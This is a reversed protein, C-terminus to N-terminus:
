SERRTWVQLVSGGGDQRYWAVITKAAGLRGKVGATVGIPIARQQSVPSVRRMALWRSPACCISERVYTAIADDACPDTLCRSFVARYIGGREDLVVGTANNAAKTTLQQASEWNAGDDNSARYKIWSDIGSIRTFAVVVSHRAALGPSGATDVGSAIVRPTSWTAGDTSRQYIVTGNGNYAVHITPSVGIAVVRKASSVSVPIALAVRAGFSSGGDTSVRTWISQVGGIQGGAWVVVVRGSGDGAVRPDHANESAPSLRARSWTAGSDTSLAHMVRATGGVLQNWVIDFRTGRASLSVNLPQGITGSIAKRHSWSAGGNTSRKFYVRSQTSTTEIYALGTTSGARALAGPDAFARGSASVQIPERWSFASVPTVVGVAVTAAASLSAVLSLLTRRRIM